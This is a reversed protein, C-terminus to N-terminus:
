NIINSIKNDLKKSTGKLPEGPPKEIITDSGEVPDGIIVRPNNIKSYYDQVVIITSVIVIICFAILWMQNKTLYLKTM